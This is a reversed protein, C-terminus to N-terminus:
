LRSKAKVVKQQRIRWVLMATLSFCLMFWISVSGVRGTAASNAAGVGQTPAIALGGPDRVVFNREGDADNAGGDEITLQLCLNGVTLGPTYLNSGPQPCSGEDGAASRIQNNDDIVFDFWGSGNYKRYVMNAQIASQLPMVVHVSPISENLGSIEFSLLSSLFTYDTEADSVAGGGNGGHNIIDQLSIQVGSVQAAVATAGLAIHLGPDTEVFYNTAFDVTNNEIVNPPLLASDKYNAIGDADADAFGEVDDDIGDSDLDVGTSLVVAEAAKILLLRRVTTSSNGDNAAVSLNYFNGVTM